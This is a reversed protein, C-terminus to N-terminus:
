RDRKLHDAGYGHEVAWLAAETRSRVDLKGYINRLHAEITRVSLILTQAIDKNTLGQALLSLVEQERESLAEVLSDGPLKGRALTTLAQAAIQPPLALEGRGVAIIARSLEAVTATRALCGLVGAQLLPLIKVLDYDYVLCLLGAGPLTAQLPKLLEPQTIPLDVLMTVMEGSRALRGAEAAQGASGLLRINPQQALLASWAARHLNAPSFIILGTSVPPPM